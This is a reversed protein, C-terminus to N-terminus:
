GVAKMGEDPMEAEEDLRQMGEMVLGMFGGLAEYKEAEAPIGPSYLFQGSTVGLLAFIARRGKLKGYDAYVLEGENFYVKATGGKLKLNVKGTKQSSNIMQLLEVVHVDSVDGAMGASINDATVKKNTKGAREILLTYFFAHLVPHQNLVHKFDRSTLAALKTVGRSYVSTVVPAGTLLSMEGFIGGPELFTISEGNDGVVEITGSLIIYLHTGPDGKRLILEDPDYRQFRLLTFLDYLDNDSLPSFVPITKLMGTFESVEWNATRKQASAMIFFELIENYSMISRCKKTIEAVMCPTYTKGTGDSLNKAAVEKYIEKKMDEFNVDPIQDDKGQSGVSKGRDKGLPYMLSFARVEDNMLGHVFSKMIDNPMEFAPNFHCFLFLTRALLFGPKNNFDEVLMDYLFQKADNMAVGRKKL